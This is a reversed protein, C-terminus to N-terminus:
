LVEDDVLKNIWQETDELWFGDYKKEM